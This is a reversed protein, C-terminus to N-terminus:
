ITLVGREFLRDLQVETPLSADFSELRASHQGAYDRLASSIAIRRSTNGICKPPRESPSPPGPKAIWLSPIKM